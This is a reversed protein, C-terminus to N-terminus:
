YPPLTASLYIPLSTGPSGESVDVDTQTLTGSKLACHVGEPCSQGDSRVVEGLTPYLDKGFRFIVGDVDWLFGMRTFIPWEVRLRDHM